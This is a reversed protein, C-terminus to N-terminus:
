ASRFVGDVLVPVVTSSDLESAVEVDDAFGLGILERGSSCARMEDGLRPRVSAFAAAAVRAEPSFGEGVLTSLVAGAGWLDEVAVRLGGDPWREGAPVVAVTLEPRAALWAGVASANRLCAALVTPVSAGLAASITSGNPSPLVVLGPPPEVRRVSGPSLSLGGESRRGAVVVGPEVDAPRSAAPIVAIGRDLAVSTTTTFSCVDVVVAVDAGTAVLSGGDPGWECRVRCAGQDASSTM